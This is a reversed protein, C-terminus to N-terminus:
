LPLKVKQAGENIRGVGCRGGKAVVLRNETDVHETNRNTKKKSEVVFSITCYKDKETQSIETLM